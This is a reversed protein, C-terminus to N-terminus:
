KQKRLFALTKELTSELSQSPEWSFTSSFKSADILWRDELLERARDPMLSPVANGIAPFIGSLAAIGELVPTPIKLLLARSNGAVKGACRILEADTIPRPHAVFFTGTATEPHKVALLLATVLDQVSIWSLEKEKSCPKFWVKGAVMQFLPVTAADRPGLIVPPRLICVSRGSKGADDLLTEMALKSEGYFSKPQCADTELLPRSTSPGAASQSSIAIIRCSGPLERLLNATGTVNGEFYENRTRAFLVGASHICVDPIFTCAATGWKSSNGTLVELKSPIGAIGEMALQGALKSGHRVSVAIREVAPDQLAELLLNRGVFGTAGTLLIKM